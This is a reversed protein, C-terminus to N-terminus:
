GNARVKNVKEKDYFFLIDVVLVVCGLTVGIDALNFVPPFFSLSIMDTVFGFLVRDILNGIGGAIVMTVALKGISDHKLLKSAVLLSLLIIFAPFLILFFRYNSFLNFAAGYNEVYVFRLVKGLVDVGQFFEEEKRVIYKTIQDAIIILFGTIYYRM